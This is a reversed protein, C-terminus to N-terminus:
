TPPTPLEKWSGSVFHVNSCISELIQLESSSVSNNRGGVFLVKLIMSRDSKFTSVLNLLHFGHRDLAGLVALVGRAGANAPSWLHSGFHIPTLGTSLRRRTRIPAGLLTCIAGSPPVRIENRGSLSILTGGNPCQISSM